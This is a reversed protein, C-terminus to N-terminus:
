GEDTVEMLQRTQILVISEGFPRRLITLVWKVAGSTPSM